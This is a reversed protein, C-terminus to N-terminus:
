SNYRKGQDDPKADCFIMGVGNLLSLPISMGGNGLPRLPSLPRSRRYFTARALRGEPRSPRNEGGALAQRLSPFVYKAFRNGFGNDPLTDIIETPEGPKALTLNGSVRDLGLSAKTGHLELEPAIGKRFFPTHSLVLTAVAGDDFEWAVSAYDFTTVRAGPRARSTARSALRRQSTSRVWTPGTRRLRTPMRRCGRQRVPWCGACPTTPTRASTQLAAPRQCGPTMAGHSHCTMRVRITGAISWAAFTAWSVPSLCRAPECSRSATVRGFPVYHALGADRYAAWMEHAEAANVGVPKECLLHKGADACAMVAEHHLADPTAVIVFNVDPHQAVERWNDTLLEAGDEEGAQDLLERRRACLAVINAGAAERIEARYPAGIYGTAGIVGVNFQFEGSQTENGQSVRRNIANSWLANM